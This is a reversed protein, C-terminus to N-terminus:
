KRANLFRLLQNFKEEISGKQVCLSSSMSKTFEEPLPPLDKDELPKRNLIDEESEIYGNMEDCCKTDHGYPKKLINDHCACPCKSEKPQTFTHKNFLMSAEALLVLASGREQCEGKPFLEDMKEALEDFFEKNTRM